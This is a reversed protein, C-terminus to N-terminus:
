SRFKGFGLGSGCCASDSPCECNTCTCRENLPWGRLSGATSESGCGGFIGHREERSGRDMGGADAAPLAVAEQRRGPLTATKIGRLIERAQIGWDRIAGGRQLHHWPASRRRDGTGPSAASNSGGSSLRLAAGGGDAGRDMGSALARLSDAEGSLLLDGERSHAVVAMPTAADTL